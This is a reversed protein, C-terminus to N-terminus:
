WRTPATRVPVASAFGGATRTAVAQTLLRLGATLAARRGGGSVGAPQRVGHVRRPIRAPLADYVGLGDGATPALLLYPSWSPDARLTRLLAFEAGGGVTTHDLHLVRLPRRVSRSGPDAVDDAASM